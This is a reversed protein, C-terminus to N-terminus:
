VRAYLASSSVLLLLSWWWQQLYWYTWSEFLQLAKELYLIHPSLHKGSAVCTNSLRPLLIIYWTAWGNQVNSWMRFLMLQAKQKGQTQLEKVKLKSPRGARSWGQRNHKGGHSEGPVEGEVHRNRKHRSSTQLYNCSPCQTSRQPHWLCNCWSYLCSGGACLLQHGQQLRGRTDLTDRMLDDPMWALALQTSMCSYIPHKHATGDHMFRDPEWAHVWHDHTVQIHLRAHAFPADQVLQIGMHSSIPQEPM